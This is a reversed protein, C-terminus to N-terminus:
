LGCAKFVTRCARCHEKWPTWVSTMNLSRCIMNQTSGLKRYAVLAAVMLELAFQFM